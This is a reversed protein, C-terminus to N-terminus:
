TSAYELTEAVEKAIFWIEDEIKIVTLNTNLVSNNFSKVLSDSMCGGEISFLFLFFASLVM